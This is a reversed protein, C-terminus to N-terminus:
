TCTEISASRCIHLNVSVQSSFGAIKTCYDMLGKNFDGDIVKTILGSSQASSADLSENLCFMQNVQKLLFLTKFINVNKDVYILENM